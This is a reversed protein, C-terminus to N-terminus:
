FIPVRFESIGPPPTQRELVPERFGGGLGCGGGQYKERMKQFFRM